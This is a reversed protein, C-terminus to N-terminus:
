MPNHFSWPPWVVSPNTKKKLVKNAKSVLFFFNRKGKLTHSV